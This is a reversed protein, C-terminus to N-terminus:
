SPLYPEIRVGTRDSWAILQELAEMRQTASPRPIVAKIDYPRRSYGSWNLRIGGEWAVEFGAPGFESLFLDVLKLTAPSFLLNDSLMSRSVEAPAGPLASTAEISLSENEGQWARDDVRGALTMLELLEALSGRRFSM